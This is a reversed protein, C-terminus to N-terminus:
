AIKKKNGGTVSNELTVPPFFLMVTPFIAYSSNKPVWNLIAYSHFYNLQTYRLQPPSSYNEFIPHMLFCEYNKKDYDLFM